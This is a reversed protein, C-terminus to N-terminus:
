ENRWLGLKKVDHFMAAPKSEGPEVVPNGDFLEFSAFALLGSATTWVDGTAAAAVLGAATSGIMFAYKWFVKRGAKQVCKNYQGILQEMEELVAEPEVERSLMKDQWEFFDRRKTKFTEDKSLDIAREFAVVPNEDAPIAIQHGFLLGATSKKDTRLGLSFNENFDKESNHASVVEVHTVGKPLNAPKESALIGATAMYPLDSQAAAVIADAEANELRVRQMADRFLRQRYDDWPRIIALDGLKKLREELIEPAWKEKRWREAEANDPPVPIVLRDYLVVNAVMSGLDIHDKVSLSGWREFSM